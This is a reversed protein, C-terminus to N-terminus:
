LFKPKSTLPRDLTLALQKAIYGPLQPDSSSLRFHLRRRKVRRVYLDGATQKWNINGRIPRFDIATIEAAPWTRERMQWWGLRSLALGNKTATLIRPVRGWRRYMRRSYAACTWWLVGSVSLAILMGRALQMFEVVEVKGFARYIVWITDVIMVLQAGGLTFPGVINLVYRWTPAVPFFVRLGGDSEELTLKRPPPQPPSAYDLVPKTETMYDCAFRGVASDLPM